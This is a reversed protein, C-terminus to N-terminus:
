TAPPTHGNALHRAARSRLDDAPVTGQGQAAGNTKQLGELAAEDSSSDSEETDSRIDNAMQGTRLFKYLMRLILSFWYAHLLILMVLCVNLFYYGFFPGRDEMSDYYTSPLIHTPFLILRTYFFLLSFVVFLTNCAVQFHVYNLIKCAELLYDTCDHLLLVLSGVRLLSSIYSFSILFITVFHHAVQEKFDKRKVDFQLTVLLSIYFSLETLYWWRLAPKLNQKPYGKWCTKIDWLWPEHYLILVGSVFSCLYFLFRWSAECFKKSLSPQDQKWRRRFWRQTQRLTLGCQTALLAMQPEQLKLGSRLFHKELTPNPKVRRRIEDRVGLWRSLPLAVFREVTLRITVLAVVLPVTALLDRPHVFVQDERDELDAWSSNPPLWIWEQWLWDSLSSLM